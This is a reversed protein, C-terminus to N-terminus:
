HFIYPVILVVEGGMADALAPQPSAPRNKAAPKLKETHDAKSNASAPTREQNAQELPPTDGRLRAVEAQSRPDLAKGAM